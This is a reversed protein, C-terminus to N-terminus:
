IQDRKKTTTSYIYVCRQDLFIAFLLLFISTPVRITINLGFRWKIWVIAKNKYELIHPSLKVCYVVVFAFLYRPCLGCLIQAIMKALIYHMRQGRGPWAELPPSRGRYQSGDRRFCWGSYWLTIEGKFNYNKHVEDWCWHRPQIPGTKSM